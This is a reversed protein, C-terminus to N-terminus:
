LPNMASPQHVSHEQSSTLSNDQVSRFSEMVLCVAVGWYPHYAEPDRRGRYRQPQLLSLCCRSGIFEITNSLFTAIFYCTYPTDREGFSRKGHDEKQKSDQLAM